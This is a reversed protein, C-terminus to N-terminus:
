DVLAGTATHRAGLAHTVESVIKAARASAEATTTLDDGFKASEGEFGEAAKAEWHHLLSQAAKRQADHREMISRAASELATQAAQAENANGALKAQHTKM